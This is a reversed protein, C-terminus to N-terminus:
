KVAARKKTARSTRPISSIVTWDHKHVVVPESSSPWLDIPIYYYGDGLVRSKIGGEFADVFEPRVFNPVPVISQGNFSGSRYGRSYSAYLMSAPALDYSLVVRGTPKTVSEDLGAVIGTLVPLGPLLDGSSAYTYLFPNRSSDRLLSSFNRLTM